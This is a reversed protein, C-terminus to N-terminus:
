RMEHQLEDLIADAGDVSRRLSWVARDVHYVHGNKVAKLKKWLVNKEIPRKGDADIDDTKGTMLIIVDPDTKLLQELTMKMNVSDGGNSSENNDSTSIAYQYGVQTLLRSTFFNEDRAMITDNTNGILLVTKGKASIERKTENLKEEHVTLKKEMEKEKGVAKAITLSVDITDQYDANVNDLAITPAIKKLQDYIKKHRTTDAIILDPKLSAIKEMSPQSRTGVSTYGEINKLVEENILQKAKNDDAVGVPTIGLDLLTDIFGLELVVVRKPHEPVNTKGLDHTVAVNHGKSNQNGSSSCAATLVFLLLVTLMILARKM